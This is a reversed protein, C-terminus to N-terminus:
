RGEIEGEIINRLLQLILAGTLSLIALLSIITTHIHMNNQGTTFLFISDLIVLSSFLTICFDSLWLYFRALQRAKDRKQYLTITRVILSPFTITIALLSLIFNFMQPIM